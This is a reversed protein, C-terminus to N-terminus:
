LDWLIYGAGLVFAAACILSFIQMNSLRSNKTYENTDDEFDSLKEAKFGSIDGVNNHEFYYEILKLAEKKSVEKTAVINDDSNLLIEVRLIESNETRGFRLFSDGFLLKFYNSKYKWHIEDFLYKAEEFCFIDGDHALVSSADIWRRKRFELFRVLKQAVGLDNSYIVFLKGDEEKDVRVDLLRSLRYKLSEEEQKSFYREDNMPFEEFILYTFYEDFVRVIPTNNFPYNKIRFEKICEMDSRKDLRKFLVDANLRIKDDHKYGFPYDVKLIGEEFSEFMTEFSYTGGEEVKKMDSLRMIIIKKANGVRKVYALYRSDSSFMIAGKADDELKRRAMGEGSLYVRGRMSRHRDYRVYELTFKGNPSALRIYYSYPSPIKLQMKEGIPEDAFLEDAKAVMEEKPVYRDSLIRRNKEHDYFLKLIGGEFSEFIMMSEGETQKIAMDELRIMIIDQSREDDWKAYALYKSDDSFIIASATGDGLMKCRGEKDFLWTEGSTPGGMAIETCAFYSLRFKGDPSDFSEGDSWPSTRYKSM